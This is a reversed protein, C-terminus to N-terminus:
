FAFVLPVHKGMATSILQEIAILSPMQSQASGEKKLDDLVKRTAPLLPEFIWEEEYLDIIVSCASNLRDWLGLKELANYLELDLQFRGSEDREVAM